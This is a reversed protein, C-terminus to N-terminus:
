VGVGELLANVRALSVPMATKLEQAFLQVRWEELMMNLEDPVSKLKAVRALVPELQARAQREREPNQKLRELRKNAAQVYVPLRQWLAMPTARIFDRAFLAALQSQMDKVAVEHVSAAQQLASQLGQVAQLVARLRRLAELGEAYLRPRCLAVRATFAEPERPWDGPPRDELFVARAVRWVVEDQMDACPKDVGKLAPLASYLLCLANDRAVERKLAKVEAQAALVFLRTLGNATAQAAAEATDMPQLTVSEGADILAPYVTTSQAQGQGPVDVLTVEPLAAFDWDVLGKRTEFRQVFARKAAGGLADQMAALDRGSGRTDGMDDILEVRLRLHPEIETLPWEAPEIQAGLMRQVEQSLRQPLSGPPPWDTVGETLRELLARAVDPAPVLHRRQNKPLARILAEIKEQLLGPVLWEAAQVDLRNLEALPLTATVGDDEAGPAFHYRLSVEIDGLRLRDPLRGGQVAEAEHRMLVERTLQLAANLTKDRRLAAALTVGDVVEPPLVREFFACLVDDDVLIDPRRAKAELAQIEAILAVNHHIFPSTEWPLRAREESAADADLAGLVGERV